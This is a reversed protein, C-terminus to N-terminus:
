WGHKKAILRARIQPSTIGFKKIAIKIAAESAPAEVTGIFVADHTSRMRPSLYIDWTRNEAGDATRKKAVASPESGGKKAASANSRSLREQWDLFLAREIQDTVARVYGREAADTLLSAAKRWWPKRRRDERLSTIFVLADNLTRLVLSNDVEIPRALKMPPNPMKPM